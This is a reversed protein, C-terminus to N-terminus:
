IFNNTFTLNDGQEFFKESDNFIRPHFVHHAVGKARNVHGSTTVSHFQGGPATFDGVVIVGGSTRHAIKKNYSWLTTGDTRLNENWSRAKKGQSFAQIVQSNRM